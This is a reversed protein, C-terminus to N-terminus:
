SSVPTSSFNQRRFLIRMSFVVFVVGIFALILQPMWLQAITGLRATEPHNRLYLVRVSDGPKLPDIGSRSDAVFLYTQGNGDAFRVVPKYVEKSFQRSYMAQLAIITGDSVVTNRVFEVKPISSVIAILLLLPGVAHLVGLFLYAILRAIVASM